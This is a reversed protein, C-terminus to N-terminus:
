ARRWASVDRDDMSEMAVALDITTREGGERAARGGEVRRGLRDPISFRPDSAAGLTVAMTEM